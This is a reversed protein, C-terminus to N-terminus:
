KDSSQYTFPLNSQNEDTSKSFCIESQAIHSLTIFRIAEGIMLNYKVDFDGSEECHVRVDFKNSTNQTISTTIIM